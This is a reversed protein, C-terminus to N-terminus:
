STRVTITAVLLKFWPNELGLGRTQVPIVKSIPIYLSLLLVEPDGEETRSFM